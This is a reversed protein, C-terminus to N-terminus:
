GRADCITLGMGVRRSVQVGDVTVTCTVDHGFNVITVNAPRVPSTALSVQKSWPLAVNFETQILGGAAVYMVSLARGEGTVNYVVDQMAASPGTTHSPTEPGLPPPVPAPRPSRPTRTPPATTPTPVWTSPEPMPPLPPVATQTRIAGNVLVLAVVLGVVLLVATGAAVWLWRPTKPGDPPPPGMGEPPAEGPPPQGHQQWYVPVQATAGAEDLEPAWPAYPMGYTPAFPAEDAYAPDVPPPYWRGRPDTPESGSLPPSFLEPRRPDNMDM